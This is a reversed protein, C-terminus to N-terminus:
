KPCVQTLRPCQVQFTEGSNGIIRIIEFDQTCSFIKNEVEFDYSLTQENCSSKLCVASKTGGFSVEMCKSDSGFVEFSFNADGSGDDCDQADSLILPCFDAHIFTPGIHSPEFYTQRPNANSNLDCKARFRHSPGCSWTNSDVDNCFYGKGYAPVKEDVICKDEAFQCGAGLGFPSNHANRFNSKYWGTDELFALTLPSFYAADEDYVASMFETFWTREDFHSGLCDSSTPQNELRAGQLGQCNFHNRAVQAVTPLVIEYYGRQVQDEGYQVEELGFRVTNACALAMDRPEQGAVCPVNQTIHFESRRNRPTLPQGTVSNRFYKYLDSNMGLVHALEHSLVDVMTAISKEHILGNTQTELTDLCVNAFGVVPRDTVPDIACPSSIALTTLASNRSCLETSGISDMASVFVLLDTDELGKRENSWEAPYDFLEFCVDPPLVISPSPEVSLTQSWLAEIQPLVKHIIANGKTKTLADANQINSLLPEVYFKIRLPKMASESTQRHRSVHGMADKQNDPTQVYSVQVLPSPPAFKKRYHKNKNNASIAVPQCGLIYLSIASTLLSIM